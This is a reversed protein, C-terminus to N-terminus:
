QNQNLDCYYALQEKLRANEKRLRQLEMQQALEPPYDSGETFSHSPNTNVDDIHAFPSSKSEGADGDMRKIPEKVKGRGYDPGIEYDRFSEGSTSSFSAGEVIRAGDRNCADIFVKLVQQELRDQRYYHRIRIVPRGNSDLTLEM